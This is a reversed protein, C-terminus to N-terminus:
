VEKIYKFKDWIGIKDPYKTFELEVKTVPHIFKIKYAHLAIQKKDQIGYRQDGYLYNGRSAFQIRIQHHRGTKLNVEVLNLNDINELTKYELIAKKGNQEDTIYASQNDDKGLYDILIDNEKITGTVVALYKKEFDHEAIMKSLRAASKSTKAFIMLGSVPRDLRHVLGVYVNGPKNYKEKIYEKVLTLMDIDKTNDSQSLVNAKKNVVIIHNDEYLVELNTM